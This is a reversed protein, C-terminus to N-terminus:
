GREDWEEGAGELLNFRVVPEAFRRGNRAVPVDGRADVRSDDARPLDRIPLNRPSFFCVTKKKRSALFTHSLPSVTSLFLQGLPSPM